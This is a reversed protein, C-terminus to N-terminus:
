AEGCWPMPFVWGHDEFLKLAMRICNSDIDKRGSALAFGSAFFLLEGVITNVSEENLREPTASEVLNRKSEMYSILINEINTVDDDNLDLPRAGIGRISLGNESRRLENIVLKRVDDFIMNDSCSVFFM